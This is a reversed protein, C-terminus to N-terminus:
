KKWISKMKFVELKEVTFSGGEAKVSITGLSGPQRPATLYSQGDNGVVEFLPRDVLVRLKLVGDSLGVPMKDLMGSAFDYTIANRGFSLTAKKADGQKITVLIDFLQGDVDLSLPHDGTVVKGAASQPEGDHLTNVEEIPNAFMRIGDRTNRLTLNLPLSFTQNFPMDGGMGIKAWGIQVARGDPPNSFCQSAYFPGYHLTHKGQHEPTFTKGDFSGVAYKADAAFVVWRTNQKDGDVALELLEPCEFYGPLHSNLTWDKLNTSSYFAINRGIQKDPNEDYVATVWHKGPAYWVLKPDRGGHKIVPNQDYYTWHLGRDTSYALAEGCGTDTFLAIMTKETGTQWGGTNHTDVNASGSFCNKHALEPHRDPSYPGGFPRLARRQETWHIMDPSTSHGWYMNGWGNGVPNCQWFLHYQGDYYVMGNPDNNWGQKQSHHFQPRMRENYLPRLHREENSSEIMALGAGAAAPSISLVATKGVYEAMDLYAWWAVQEKTQALNGELHHILAGDVRVALMSKNKGNSVPYLLLKGTLKLERTAAPAATLQAAVSGGALLSALLLPLSLLPLGLLHKKM